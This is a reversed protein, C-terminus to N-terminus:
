RKHEQEVDRVVVFGQEHLGALAQEALTTPVIPGYQNISMGKTMARKVDCDGPRETDRSERAALAADVESDEDGVLEDVARVYAGYDGLEHNIRDALAVAIECNRNREEYLRCLLGYLHGEGGAAAVREARTLSRVLGAAFARLEGIHVADHKDNTAANHEDVCRALREEYWRGTLPVLSECEQGEAPDIEMM